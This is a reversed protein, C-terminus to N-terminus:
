EVIASVDKFMYCCCYSDMHLRIPEGERMTTVISECEIEEISLLGNNTLIEM